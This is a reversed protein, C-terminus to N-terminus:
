SCYLRLLRPINYICTYELLADCRAARRRLWPVVQALNTPQATEPLARARQQAALLEAGSNAAELARRCDEQVSRVAGCWVADCRVVLALLICSM